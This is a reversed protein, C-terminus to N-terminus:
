LVFEAANNQVGISFDEGAPLHLVNATLAEATVAEVVVVGSGTEGETVAGSAAGGAKTLRGAM